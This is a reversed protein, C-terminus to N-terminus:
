IGATERSPPNKGTNTSPPAGDDLVGTEPPGIPREEFPPDAPSPNRTEHIEDNSNKANSHTM